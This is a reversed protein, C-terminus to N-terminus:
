EGAVVASGHGEMFSHTFSHIAPQFFDTKDFMSLLNQESFVTAVTKKIRKSFEKLKGPKISEEVIVETATDAFGLKELVDQQDRTTAAPRPNFSSSKDTKSTATMICTQKKQTPEPVYISRNEPAM